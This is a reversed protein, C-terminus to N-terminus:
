NTETVHLFCHPPLHKVKSELRTRGELVDQGRWKFALIRAPYQVQDSQFMPNSYLGCSSPLLQTSKHFYSNTCPGVKFSSNSGSAYLDRCRVRIDFFSNPEPSNNVFLVAEYTSVDPSPEFRVFFEVALDGRSTPVLSADLENVPRWASEYDWALVVDNRM